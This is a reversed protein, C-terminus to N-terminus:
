AAASRPSRGDSVRPALKRLLGMLTRRERDSLTGLTRANAATAAPLAGHLAERGRDTLEVVLLRRDGAGPGTTLLGAAVLRRVTAHINAPPMGVSRGLENQSLPGREDLRLLTAFQMPTLGTGGISQVLNAAARQYALRLLFGVHDDLGPVDRLSPRPHPCASLRRESRRPVHCPPAEHHDM